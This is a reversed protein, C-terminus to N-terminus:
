PNQRRPLPRMAAALALEQQNGMKVILANKACWGMKGKFYTERGAM